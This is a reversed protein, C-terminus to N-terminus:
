AVSKGAYWTRVSPWAPKPVPLVKPKSIAPGSSTKLGASCNNAVTRLCNPVGPGAGCICSAAPLLVTTVPAAGALPKLM